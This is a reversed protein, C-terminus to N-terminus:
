ALATKNYNVLFHSMGDMKITKILQILREEFGSLVSLDTGWLHQDMLIEHVFKELSLNALKEKFVIANVDDIHFSADSKGSEMMLLLFAALGISMYEPVKHQLKYYQVILAINRLRMKETYNVAISIWKHEISPNAFREKVGAAFSCATTLDIEQNVISPSIEHLMLADLYHVFAKNLMAEKVTKFGALLAIACSFSHTGNLLRLKLDRFKQISATIVIGQNVEAFSLQRKIAPKDSEIAWLAFPESMIMLGDEYGLELKAEETLVPSLAGPVIRDVLTNCFHNHQNLWDIFGTELENSVALQNVIDKLVFGNNPVLETPLIVMGAAEAGGFVQWRKYLFALLKGPFSSPVGVHITDEKVLVLGSETTNSIVVQMALNAALDLILSWQTAATLVRSISANIIYEDVLQSHEIGRICQTYLCDQEEFADAGPTATSKVVVVRGNFVQQKNAKDIFYDPLGRLLVGTGFQLVKEPLHFYPLEPVSVKDKDIKNLIEKKLKM